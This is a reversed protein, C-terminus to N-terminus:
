KPDYAVPIEGTFPGGFCGVVRGASARCSKEYRFTNPNYAVPIEGTFPGGFCGVVRGASVRCTKEYGGAHATSSLFIAVCLVLPRSSM